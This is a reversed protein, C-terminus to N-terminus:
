EKQSGEDLSAEEDSHHRCCKKGPRNKGPATDPLEYPSVNRSGCLGCEVQEEGPATFISRCDNCIYWGSELQVHGGRIEIRRGEVFAKAIKERASMYIRTYTPRSVGMVEAAECQIKKEYDNLRLAEYEEYTMLVPEEELSAAPGGFPNFGEVTPIFSITRISKPRGKM